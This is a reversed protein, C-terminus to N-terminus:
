YHLANTKEKDDQLKQCTPHKWSGVSGVRESILVQEGCVACKVSTRPM